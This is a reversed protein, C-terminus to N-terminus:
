IITWKGFLCMYTWIYKLCRLTLMLFVSHQQTFYCLFLFNQINQASYGWKSNQYEINFDCLILFCTHNKNKSKIILLTWGFNWVEQTQVLAFTLSEPCFWCFESDSDLLCKSLLDTLTHPLVNEAPTQLVLSFCAPEAMHKNARAVSHAKCFPEWPILPFIWYFPRLVDQYILFFM